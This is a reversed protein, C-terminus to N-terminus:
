TTATTAKTVGAYYYRGTASAAPGAGLGAVLAAVTVLVGIALLTRLRGVANLIIVIDEPINRRPQVAMCM